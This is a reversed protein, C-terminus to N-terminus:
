RRKKAAEGLHFDVDGEWLHFCYEHKNVWGTTEALPLLQVMLKVRAVTPIEFRAVKIEDWTPYRDPHWIALHWRRSSDKGIRVHALRVTCEDVRWMELPDGQLREQATPLYFCQVPAPPRAEFTGPVQRSNM